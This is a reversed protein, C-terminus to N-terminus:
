GRTHTQRQLRRAAARNDRRWDYPFTFFNEGLRVDFMALISATVIGYGDIKWYGPMFHLDPLLATATVGDDLVEREPDDSGLELADAIAHGGTFLARAMTGAGFGWVAKNDKELTSGM